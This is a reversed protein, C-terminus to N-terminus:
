IEIERHRKDANNCRGRGGEEEKGKEKEDQRGIRRRREKM